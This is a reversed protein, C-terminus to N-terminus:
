DSDDIFKCRSGGRGFPPRLCPQVEQCMSTVGSLVINAFLDERIYWTVKPSVSHRSSAQSSCYKQAVSFAFKAACPRGRLRSELIGQPCCFRDAGVTLASAPLVHQQIFIGLHRIIFSLRPGRCSFGGSYSDFRQLLSQVSVFSRAQVGVVRSSVMGLSNLCCRCVPCRVREACFSSIIDDPPATLWIYSYIQSTKWTTFNPLLSCVCPLAQSRRWRSPPRVVVWFASTFGWLQRLRLADAFRLRAALIFGSVLNM